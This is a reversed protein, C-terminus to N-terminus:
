KGSKITTGSAIKKDKLYVFPELVCNTGVVTEGLLVTNPYIITDQGVEVQPEIYVTDPVLITVGKELLSNIKKKRLIDVADSLDKRTNIGKLEFPDKNKFGGVKGGNKRIIAVVDTLYYEGQANDATVQKLAKRLPKISFVYVGGNVEKIKKQSKDADREEVIQVIQDEERIIRGYSEPNGPCFTMVTVNYGNERHYKVLKKLSEKSLLPIDGSLIIATGEKDEVKKLGKEVADGTGTPKEQLAYQVGAFKEKIEEGKKGYVITISEQSISKALSIVREIMMKGMLNHLVKVKKSKMRKGVGAALILTHLAM